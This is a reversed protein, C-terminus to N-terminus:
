EWLCCAQLRTKVLRIAPRNKTPWNPLEAQIPMIRRIPLIRSRFGPKKGTHACSFFLLSWSTWPWQGWGTWMESAPKWILFLSISQYTLAGFLWNLFETDRQSCLLTLVSYPLVMGDIELLCGWLSLNQKHSCDPFWRVMMDSWQSLYAGPVSHLTKLRPLVCM